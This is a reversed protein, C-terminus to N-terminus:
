QISDPQSSVIGGLKKLFESPRYQMVSFFSNTYAQLSKYGVRFAIESITLEQENLLEISKLIRLLQQYKSLTLGTQKKFIREVTRISLAAIQSLDEMALNEAYHEHLYATANSLRKDAPPTIYLQQSRVVFQPLENLLTGLFLTENPDERLKKSWKEAYKIMEKLVPPVLFVSIENYFPAEKELDFFMIMLKIKKSGWNTKHICNSPIWAAHNKPLLYIKEEVTLYQFGSEVYILQGKNHSHLEDNHVWSDEFCVLYPKEVKDVNFPYQENNM